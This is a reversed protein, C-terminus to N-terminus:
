AKRVGPENKRFAREAGTTSNHIEFVSGDLHLIQFVERVGTSLGAIKVQGGFSTMQKRLELLANIVKPSIMNVNSFDVITKEPRVITGFSLLAEATARARNGDALNEFAFRVITLDNCHEVVLPSEQM